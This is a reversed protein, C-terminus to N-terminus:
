RSTEQRATTDDEDESTPLPAADDVTLIEAGPFLTLAKVM